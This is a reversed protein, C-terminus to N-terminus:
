IRVSYNASIYALSAPNKMNTPEFPPKTTLNNNSLEITQSAHLSSLGFPLSAIKLFVQGLMSVANKATGEM